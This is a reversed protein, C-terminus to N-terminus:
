NIFFRDLIYLFISSVIFMKFAYPLNLVFIEKANINYRGQITLNLGSFPSTSVTVAWAILFTIAILTHDFDLLMDGIVAITIIPHIGIFSLIIFGLLTIIAEKYTFIDFPVEVKYGLLLTSISVGFMGAVLFLTLESKANPLEEFIYEKLVKIPNNKITLIVLTLLFSYLAVLIIVKADQFIEVTILIMIALTIPVYLTEFSLPYGRFTKVDFKRKVDYYTIIFAMFALALGNLLAMPKSFNPVYTLAAAFAVFFPSWFADSSFARTLTVLQIPTLKSKKYLKDAVIIFSSLNIVAGFLHVGFYTKLFSKEGIHNDSGEEGKPKAVLKLFGVGILLTILYQNVSFLKTINIDFGKYYAFLLNIMTLIFLIIILLKKKLTSFLIILAVWSLIGAVILLQNNVFYSFFTTLYSLFITIGAFKIM